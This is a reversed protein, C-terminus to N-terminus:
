IERKNLNEEYELQGDKIQDRLKGTIDHRHIHHIQKRMSNQQFQTAADGQSCRTGGNLQDKALSIQYTWIKHMLKLTETNLITSPM